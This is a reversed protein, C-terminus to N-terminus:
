SSLMFEAVPKDIGEQILTRRESEPRWGLVSKARTCDFPAAASRGETARYSPRTREPYGAVVKIAWKAVDTAYFRWSSGVYRELRIGACREIEDLYEQATLKADGVLNFSQGEIGPTKLCRVIADAVDQVLVVPLPTTGPGWTQCVSHHPWMGIGWHCPNGGPGLVIGPRVIVLPLHRQEHLEQLMRESFVKARAYVQNELVAPDPPTEETIPAASSGAYYIVISSAYIFREVKADICAEALSRTVGIDDREYEQWTNGQSRALHVVHRVGAVSRRLFEPDSLSCVALELPLTELASPLSGASRTVIRVRHGAGVLQRVLERGIFGTAGTVLVDSAASGAGNTKRKPPPAPAEIRAERGIREGLEIVRAAFEASHREDLV